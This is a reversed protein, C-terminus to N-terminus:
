GSDPPGQLWVSIQPIPISSLGPIGTWSQLDQKDLIGGLITAEGEHLRITQDTKKQAIIPETVGEITSSGNESSVEIALKLTVDHDYHVTPTMEINVGVDIYQFQTEALSTVRGRDRGRGVPVIRHCDSHALRDEDDGEALRHRPHAPEAFDQHDLRDAARQGHGHWHDGCFRELESAGPQLADSEHFDDDHVFLIVILFVFQDAVAAGRGREGAVSIGLTREWNKNVELVAIDVVVEPRAKDLDNVLRRRWCCNM